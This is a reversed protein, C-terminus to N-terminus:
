WVMSQYDIHILAHPQQLMAIGTWISILVKMIIIQCLALSKKNYTKRAWWFQNVCFLNTM